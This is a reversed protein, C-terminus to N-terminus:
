HHPQTPSRRRATTPTQATPTARAVGRLRTREGAVGLGPPQGPVCHGRRSGSRRTSLWWHILAPLLRPSPAPDPGMLLSGELERERPHGLERDLADCGVASCSLPKVIAETLGRRMYGSLRPVEVATGSADQWLEFTSVPLSCSRPPTTGCPMSTATLASAVVCGATGIHSVARTAPGIM